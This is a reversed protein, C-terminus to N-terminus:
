KVKVRRCCARTTWMCMICNVPDCDLNLCPAPGRDSMLRSGRKELNEAARCSVIRQCCYLSWTFGMLLSTWFLENELTEDLGLEAGSLSGVCFYLLLEMPMRLRHSADKVDTTGLAVRFDRYGDVTMGGPGGSDGNWVEVEIRALGEASCLDVGPSM